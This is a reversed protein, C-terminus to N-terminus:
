DMVCPIMVEARGLRMGILKDILQTKITFLLYPLNLELVGIILNIFIDQNYVMKSVKTYLSVIVVFVCTM